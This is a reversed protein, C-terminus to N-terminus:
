LIKEAEVNDILTYGHIIIDGGEYWDFEFSYMSSCFSSDFLALVNERGLVTTELDVVLSDYHDENKAIYDTLFSSVAEYPNDFTGAKFIVPM